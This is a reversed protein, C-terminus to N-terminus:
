NNTISERKIFRIKVEGEDEFMHISVILEYEKGSLLDVELLKSDYWEKSNPDLATYSVPTGFDGDEISAMYGRTNGFSAYVMIEINHKGPMFYAIDHKSFIGPHSKDIRHYYADINDWEDVEGSIEKKRAKRM